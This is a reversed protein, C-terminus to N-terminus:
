GSMRREMGQSRMSRGTSRKRREKRMAEATQQDSARQGSSQRKGQIYSEEKHGSEISAAANLPPTGAETGKPATRRSVPVSNGIDMKSRNTKGRQYAQLEIDLSKRGSAPAKETSHRAGREGSRKQTM